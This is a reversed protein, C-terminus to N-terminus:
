VESYKGFAFGDNKWGAHIHTRAISITRVANQYCRDCLKGGSITSGCTQCHYGDGFLFRPMVGDKRAKKMHVKANKALCATCKAKGTEPKRKGCKTCIGSEKRQAYLDRSKQKRQAKQEDTMNQYADRNYEIRMAKCMLCLTKGRIAKENECAVCMGRSKLFDYRDKAYSKDEM